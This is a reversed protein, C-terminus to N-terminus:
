HDGRFWADMARRGRGDAEPMMHAYIRLTISPDAHGLRKSVAVVSERADLQVSAFTHRLAHIGDDPAAAYKRVKQHSARGVDTATAASYRRCRRTRAEMRRRQLRQAASRRGVGWHRDVRIHAPCPGRSGQKGLRGLVWLPSYALGVHTLATAAHTNPM